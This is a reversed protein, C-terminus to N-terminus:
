LFRPEQHSRGCAKCQYQEFAYPKSVRESAHITQVGLLWWERAGCYPCPKESERKQTSSPTAPVAVLPVSPGIALGPRIEVDRRTHRAINTDDPAEFSIKGTWAKSEAHVRVRLGLTKGASWDIPNNFILHVGGILDSRMEGRVDPPIWDPPDVYLEKVEIISRIDIPGDTQDATLEAIDLFRINFRKINLSYRCTVTLFHDSEGPPIPHPWSTDIPKGSPPPLDTFVIKFIRKRWFEKWRSKALDYLPEGFLYAIIIALLGGATITFGDLLLWGWIFLAILIRRIM